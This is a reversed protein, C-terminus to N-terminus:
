TDINIKGAAAAVIKYSVFIFEFHWGDFIYRFNELTIGNRCLLALSEPSNKCTVASYTQEFNPEM